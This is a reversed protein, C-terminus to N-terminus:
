ATSLIVVATTVLAIGIWGIPRLRHGFLIRGVIATGFVGIAGWMAYAVALDMSKVAQGLLAFAIWVLAIAGAGWGVKRFGQSKAIMMNAAIDILASTTVFLIPVLTM